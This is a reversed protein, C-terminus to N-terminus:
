EGSEDNLSDGFLKSMEKDTLRKAANMLDAWGESGLNLIYGGIEDCKEWQDANLKQGARTFADYVGFATKEGNAEKLWTECVTNLGAKGINNEKAILAFVQIAAAGAIPLQHTGILLPIKTTTLPIQKEINVRIAEEFEKLDIGMHKRRLEIGDKAGWVCGNMCIARFISPTQWVSRQGIASNGCNLMGGYDSDAESRITDPILVNGYFNDPSSFHFHSLRGGPIYKALIGLYWENEVISYDKGLVGRITGDRYTRFLLDKDKDMKRIGNHWADCILQLDMDDGHNYAIYITSPVNLKTCLQKAAWDTSNFERGDLTFVIRPKQGEVRNVHFDLDRVNFKIDERQAAQRAFIELGADYSLTKPYWYQSVNRFGQEAAVGQSSFVWSGQSKMDDNGTLLKLEEASERPQIKDTQTLISETVGNISIAPITTSELLEIGSAAAQVDLPNDSLPVLTPMDELGYEAEDNISDGDLDM